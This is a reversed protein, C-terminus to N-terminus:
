RRRVTAIRLEVALVLAGARPERQEGQQGAGDDDGDALERLHVGPELVVVADDLAVAGHVEADGRLGVLAQHHGDDVVGLAVVQPRQSGLDGAQRRRRAVARHRQLLQM